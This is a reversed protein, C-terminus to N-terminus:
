ASKTFAKGQVIRQLCLQLLTGDMKTNYCLWLEWVGAKEVNQTLFQGSIDSADLCCAAASSSLGPSAFM